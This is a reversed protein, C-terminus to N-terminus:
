DKRNGRIPIGLEGCVSHVAKLLAPRHEYLSLYKLEGSDPATQLQDLLFNVVEVHDRQVDATCHKRADECAEAILKNRPAWRGHAGLKAFGSSSDNAAPAFVVPLRKKFEHRNIFCPEHIVGRWDYQTLSDSSPAEVYGTHITTRACSERWYASPIERGDIEAILEGSALQGLLWEQAEVQQKKADSVDYRKVRKRRKVGMTEAEAKRLRVSRWKGPKYCGTAEVVASRIDIYGKPTPIM